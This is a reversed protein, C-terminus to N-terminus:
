RKTMKNLYKTLWAFCSPGGQSNNSSESSISEKQEQSFIFFTDSSDSHHPEVEPHGTAIVANNSHDSVPQDTADDDKYNETFIHEAERKIWPIECDGQECELQKCAASTLVISARYPVDNIQEVNAPLSKPMSLEIFKDDAVNDTFCIAETENGARTTENQDAPSLTSQLSNGAVDINSPEPEGFQNTAKKANIDTIFSGIDNFKHFGLSTTKLKKRLTSQLWSPDANRKLSRSRRRGRRVDLGDSVASGPPLSIAETANDDDSLITEGGYDHVSQEQTGNGEAYIITAIRQNFIERLRKMFADLRLNRNEAMESIGFLM